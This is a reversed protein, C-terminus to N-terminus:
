ISVLIYTPHRLESLLEDLKAKDTNLSNQLESMRQFNEYQPVHALLVGTHTDVTILLQDSRFCPQLIPVHLVAPSGNLQCKEGDGLKADLEQKVDYLRSKTRLYITHVILREISLKDSRIAREAIVAESSVQKWSDPHPSAYPSTLSSFPDVQVTLRYGLQANPDRHMLERWYTLTLSKGQLYEEVRIHCDLRDELLQLILYLEEEADPCLSGRAAIVPLLFTSSYISRFTPKSQRSPTVSGVSSYVWCNIDVELLRWPETPSDSMLTLSVEFEYDVTFRVSGNEIKTTRMQPPLETTVLRHQVIQELKSLTQRKESLTMPEPPLIRQRVTLPLRNYSGTTLTEVAAPIHFHPLRANVLNEKTMHFLKDATDIILSNQKELFNTIHCCKDVKSASAAWKVLALLRVYLQRTRQAFQAIDIKKELDSKRPLIEPWIPSIRIHGLSITGMQGGM